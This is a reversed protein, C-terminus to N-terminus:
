CRYARKSYTINNLGQAAYVKGFNITYYLYAQIKNMTVSNEAKLLPKTTKRM